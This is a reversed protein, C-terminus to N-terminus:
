LLENIYKSLLSNCKTYIIWHMLILHVMSMIHSVFTDVTCKVKQFAM